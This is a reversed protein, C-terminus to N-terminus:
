RRLARATLAPNKFSGDFPNVTIGPPVIADIRDLVADELVVDAAALQGELQEITRPGIIAASIAPHNAVFGIALQMLTWGHQTLTQVFEEPYRDPELGRWYEGPFDACLQSVAQRIDRLDDSISFDM